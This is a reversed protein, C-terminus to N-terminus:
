SVFIFAIQLASGSPTPTSPPSTSDIPKYSGVNSLPPIILASLHPPSKSLPPPPFGEILYRGKKRKPEPDEPRKNFLLPNNPLSLSPPPPTPLGGNNNNSSSDM